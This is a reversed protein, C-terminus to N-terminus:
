GKRYVLLKEKINRFTEDDAIEEEELVNKEVFVNM